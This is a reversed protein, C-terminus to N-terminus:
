TSLRVQVAMRFNRDLCALFDQVLTRESLLQIKRKRETERIKSVETRVKAILDMLKQEEHMKIRVYRNFIKELKDLSGEQLEKIGPYYSLIEAKFQAYTRDRYQTLRSWQDKLDGKKVFDVLAKKKHRDLVVSAQEFMTEMREIYAWVEAATDDELVLHSAKWLQPVRPNKYLQQTTLHDVR